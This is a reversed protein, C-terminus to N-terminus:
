RNGVRGGAMWLALLLISGGLLLPLPAAKEGFVLLSVAVALPAKLNNFVALVGTNVLRAGKNWLFFGLGSAIVGLYLLALGQRPQPLTAPTGWNTFFLSAIGVLGAGGLYLWAFVDQDR